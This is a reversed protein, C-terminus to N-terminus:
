RRALAKISIWPTVASWRAATGRANRASNPGAYEPGVCDTGRHHDDLIRLGLGLLEIFFEAFALGDDEQHRRALGVVGQPRQDALFLHGAHGVLLFYEAVGDAVRRRRHNREVGIKM